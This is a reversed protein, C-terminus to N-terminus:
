SDSLAKRKRLRESLREIEKEESPNISATERTVGSRFPRERLERRMQYATPSSRVGTVPRKYVFNHPLSRSQPREAIGMAQRDEISLRKRKGVFRPDELETGEGFFERGGRFFAHPRKRKTGDIDAMRRKEPYMPVIGPKGLVRKSEASVDASVPIFDFRRSRTTARSRLGALKRRHPSPNITPFLRRPTHDESISRLVGEEHDRSKSLPLKQRSSSQPSDFGIPSLSPGHRVHDPSSPVTRPTCVPSSQLAPSPPHWSSGHQLNYTIIRDGCSFRPPPDKDKSEVGFLKCLMQRTVAREVNYKCRAAKMRRANIPRLKLDSISSRSRHHQLHTM